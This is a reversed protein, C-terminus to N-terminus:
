KVSDSESSATSCRTSSSPHLFKGNKNALSRCLHATNPHFHSFYCFSEQDSRPMSTSSEWWRKSIIVLREQYECRYKSIKMQLTSRNINNYYKYYISCFILSTLKKRKYDSKTAVKLKSVRLNLLSGGTIIFHSSLLSFLHLSALICISYLSYFSKLTHSSYAYM